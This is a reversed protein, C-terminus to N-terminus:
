STHVIGNYPIPYLTFIWWQRTKRTTRRFLCTVGITHQMKRSGTWSASGHTYDCGIFSDVYNMILQDNEDEFVYDDRHQIDKTLGSTTQYTARDNCHLCSFFKPYLNRCKLCLQYDCYAECLLILTPLLPIPLWTQGSSM